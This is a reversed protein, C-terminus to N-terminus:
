SPKLLNTDYSIKSLQLLCMGWYDWNCGTTEVTAAVAFVQLLNGVTQLCFVTIVACLRPADNSENRDISKQISNVNQYIDYM